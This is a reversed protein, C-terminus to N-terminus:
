DLAVDNEFDYGIIYDKHEKWGEANKYADVSEMPVMIMCDQLGLGGYLYPPTQAKCYITKLFKAGYFLESGLSVVSEPLTITSILTGMFPALDVKIRIDLTAQKYQEIEYSMKGGITEVNPPLIVEVMNINNAFATSPITKVNIFHQLERFSFVNHNGVSVLWGGRDEVYLWGNFINDINSVKAAEEYSLEGDNNFDWNACCIAKVIPDNFKINIDNTQEKSLTITSGDSLNFYVYENDETVSIFVGDGVGTNDISGLETWTAGEDYSVYWYDNEIKIRPTIADKGDEGDVGDQGDKGDQGVAKIKNGKADLLWEGDVTWYYIGDTDKMVGIQPTYGNAGDKGDIGNYITITDNHAFTITYGIIEGDKRIPSVNTIYDNKELANVITQLANINTNLQKCLEELASIRNEHNELKNWIESDDFKDCSSVFATAIIAVLFLLKKM